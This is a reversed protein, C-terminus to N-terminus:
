FLMQLRMQIVGLTQNYNAVGLGTQRNVPGHIMYKAERGCESMAKQGRMRTAIWM